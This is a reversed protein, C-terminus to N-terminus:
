EYLFLIVQVPHSVLPHIYQLFILRCISVYGAEDTGLLNISFDWAAAQFFSSARGVIHIRRECLSGGCSQLSRAIAQHEFYQSGRLIMLSLLFLPLKVHM